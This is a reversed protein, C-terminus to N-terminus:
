RLLDRRASTCYFNDGHYMSEMFIYFSMMVILAGCASTFFNQDVFDVLIPWQDNAENKKRRQKVHGGSAYVPDLGPSM